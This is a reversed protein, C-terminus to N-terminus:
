ANLEAVFADYSPRDPRLGAYFACMDAAEQNTTNYFLHDAEVPDLGLVRAAARDIRGHEDFLRAIDQVSLDPNLFHLTWGGVCRQTGCERVPTHEWDEQDHLEPHRTIQFLVNKFMVANYGM